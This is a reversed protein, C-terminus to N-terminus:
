IDLAEYLASFPGEVNSIFFFLVVQVRLLKKTWEKNQGFNQPESRSIIFYLFLWQQGQELFLITPFGERLTWKRFILSIRVAM